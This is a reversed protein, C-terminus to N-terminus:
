ININTLEQQATADSVQRSSALHIENIKNNITVKVFADIITRMQANTLDVVTQDVTLVIGATFGGSFLGRALKPLIVNAKTTLVTYIFTMDTNSGNVPTTFAM